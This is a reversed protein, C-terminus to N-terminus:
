RIYINKKYEALHKIVGSGLDLTKLNEPPAYVKGGYIAFISVMTVTM